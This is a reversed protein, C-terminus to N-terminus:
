LQGTRQGTVAMVILDSCIPTLYVHYELALNVTEAFIPDITVTATGDKLTARGFDETWAEASTMGYLTRYETSGDGGTDKFSNYTETPM